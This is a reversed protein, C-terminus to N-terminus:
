RPPRSSRGAPKVGRPQRTRQILAVPLRLSRRLSEEKKAMVGEDQEHDYGALHLL